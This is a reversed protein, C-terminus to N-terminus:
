TTMTLKGFQLETKLGFLSQSGTILSGPLPFTVNGAEIKKIIEDEKGDYEIKTKNEFDFTAETNYNLGVEMKDGISGTVNMQIKNKFTFSGNRKNRESLSPNDIKSINYGFILEASGQPTINVADTGFVKNLTESGLRLNQMFSPGAGGTSEKAKQHWYNKLAKNQEYERYEEYSMSSPTRYNIRGVTESFEYRKTEPNFVVSSKVNSPDDLFLPSVITTPVASQRDDKFPYKLQTTDQSLSDPPLVLLSVEGAPTGYVPTITRSACLLVLIIIILIYKVRGKLFYM